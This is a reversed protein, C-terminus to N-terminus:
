PFGPFDHFKMSETELGPFDHFKIKPGQFDHFFLTKNPLNTVAYSLALINYSLSSYNFLVFPVCKPLYWLKNKNLQKPRYFFISFYTSNRFNEFTVAIHLGLTM